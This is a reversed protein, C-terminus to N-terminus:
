GHGHAARPGGDMCATGPRGNGGHGLWVHHSCGAERPSAGAAGGGADIASYHHSVAAGQREILKTQGKTRALPNAFAGQGPGLAHGILVTHRAPRGNHAAKQTVSLDGFASNIPALARWLLESRIITSNSRVITQYSDHYRHQCSPVSKIRPSTTRRRTVACM